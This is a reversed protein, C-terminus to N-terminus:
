FISKIAEVAEFKKCLFDISYYSSYNDFFIIVWKYKSYFLTFLEFFDSDILKLLKSFHISNKSFSCQYIKELTCSYCVHKQIPFCIKKM